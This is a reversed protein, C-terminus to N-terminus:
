SEAKTVGVEADNSINLYEELEVPMALVGAPLGKMVKVKETFSSGNARVRIPEGEKVKLKEADRQNVGIYPKPSLEAIGPSRKSLEGSGFIHYRPVIIMKGNQKVKVEKGFDYYQIEAKGNPEFLRIGPDGGHLPGGVEIQYKNISQASNWGPSWFFPILSSPPTGHYGEMTYSFPSDPDEQPRPESVNKDAHMATRGSYRHPERAIKQGAVRFGPPPTLHQIAELQPYSSTLDEVIAEYSIAGPQANNVKKDILRLWRWSEMIEQEPKFVQYSRQARGEQNVYTGESEATTGSSLVLHAAKTTTNELHDLVIVYQAKSLIDDISKKDRRLFLDNELVILTGIEEKNELIDDLSRGELMVLGMTNNEPVVYSLKTDSNQKHCAMALNSAAEILLPERCSTGSIILPKKAQKLAKAIEAALKQLEGSVSVKPAKGDLEHAIAFGLRALEKPNGYHNKTSIDELKTAFPAALYLPGKDEQILERVAADQWAPIKLEEAKEKPQQRVAQRVALAMMPATNTLDEGLVVVADCESIEKLSPTKVPYGTLIEQIRKVMRHQQRDIGAYFNGDKVLKKLAYNAELSARPSGIGVVKKSGSILETAKRIAEDPTLADYKGEGTRIMPSKTRSNDNNYEYGFRGRDCLFYGNVEGNYRSLVRRITGYREGVITNCGLSCHECVSPATTLDWKRAYHKKLTKDTFVGTPCIEVLNGSFENELVGDKSRGFYVHNHAAFVDLDKGDAHNRYFRVCRYCQICRNMEHNIFPGLYQNQHTRKNFRFRRYDHGTMVTMDQLHCEGGEDCVPCDHPHNTMLWEIVTKRFRVAEPDSISVRLNDAIPEMCAMFLKGNEDNEDKFKKIACQRCAGVSGLAPHWCFYPLNYGLSLCVELLSKGEEVEYEKNDIFIKAM